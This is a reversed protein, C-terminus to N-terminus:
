PPPNRRRRRRISTSSRSTRGSPSSPAAFIPFYPDPSCARERRAPSGLTAGSAVVIRRSGFLDACLDDAAATASPIIRPSIPKTAASARSLTASFLLLLDLTLASFALIYLEFPSFFARALGGCFRDDRRTNNIRVHIFLERM